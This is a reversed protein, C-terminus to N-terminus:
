RAKRRRRRGARMGTGKRPTTAAATGPVGRGRGPFVPNAM